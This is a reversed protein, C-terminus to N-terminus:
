FITAHTVRITDFLLLGFVFLSGILSIAAMSEIGLGFSNSHTGFIGSFTEKALLYDVYFSICSTGTLLIGGVIRQIAHEGSIGVSAATRKLIDRASTIVHDTAHLILTLPRRILEIPIEVLLERVRQPENFMALITAAAAVGGLILIIFLTISM